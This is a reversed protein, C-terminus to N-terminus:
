FAISCTEQTLTGTCTTCRSHGRAMKFSRAVTYPLVAFVCTRSQLFSSVEGAALFAKHLGLNPPARTFAEGCCGVLSFYPFTLERREERQLLIYKNLLTISGKSRKCRKSFSLLERFFPVFEPIQAALFDEPSGAFIYFKRSQWFHNATYFTSKEVVWVQVMVPTKGYERDSCWPTLSYLSPCGQLFLIKM